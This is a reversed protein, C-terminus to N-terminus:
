NDKFPREGREVPRRRLRFRAIPSGFPAATQGPQKDIRLIGM